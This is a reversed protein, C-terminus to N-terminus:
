CSQQYLIWVEETLQWQKGWVIPKGPPESPLSEARLEPSEPEVGPDTLNGPSSFPKGSCYEQRSFEISLPVQRAVTWPTSSYSVVSCSVSGSEWM